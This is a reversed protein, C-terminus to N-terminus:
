PHLIEAVEKRCLVCNSSVNKANSFLKILYVPNNLKLMLTNRYSDTMRSLESFSLNCFLSMTVNLDPFM